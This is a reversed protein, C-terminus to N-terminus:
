GRMTLIEHSTLFEGLRSRVANSSFMPVCVAGCERSVIKKWSFVTQKHPPPHVQTRNNWKPRDDSYRFGRPVSGFGRPTSSTFTSSVSTSHHHANTMCLQNISIPAAAKIITTYLIALTPSRTELVLWQIVAVLRANVETNDKCVM